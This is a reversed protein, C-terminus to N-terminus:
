RQLRCGLVERLVEEANFLQIIQGEAERLARVAESDGAEDGLAECVAYDMNLLIRILKEKRRRWAKKGGARGAEVFKARLEPYRRLLEKM